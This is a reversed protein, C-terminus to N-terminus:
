KFCTPVTTGSACGDQVMMMSACFLETRLVEDNAITSFYSYDSEYFKEVDFPFYTKDLGYGLAHPDTCKECLDAPASKVGACGASYFENLMCEFGHTDGCFPTATVIACTGDVLRKRYKTFGAVKADDGCPYEVKAFTLATVTANVHAAVKTKALVHPEGRLLAGETVVLTVAAILKMM